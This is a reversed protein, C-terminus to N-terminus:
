HSQCLSSGATWTSYANSGSGWSVTTSGNGAITVNFNCGSSDTDNYTGAPIFALRTNLGSANDSFDALVGGNNLCLLVEKYPSSNPGCPTIPGIVSMPTTGDVGNCVVVSTQNADSTSYVGTGQTDQAMMIISGGNPCQSASASVSAAIISVGNTGSPGQPGTPGVPGTSGSPGTNGTNGTDGKPGQPGTSGPAGPAGTDGKPGQPGTAGTAGDCVIQTDQIEVDELISNRNLDRGVQVILGTGSACVPLPSSRTEKILANLGNQPQLNDCSVLLFFISLLIRTKM